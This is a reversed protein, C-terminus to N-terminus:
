SRVKGARKDWQRARWRSRLYGIPGYLMGKREQWTLERPYDSLKGNNKASNPSLAYLVGGPLKVLLDLLLRPNDLIAKTLFATFGAGYGYATRRLGAYDRRHSHHVIAAPEYVLTYGQMVTTFFGALDDGGMAPTGTGTAPDFGGMAKLASTRFAMNAGSGLQGATFPFLRDNPRHERLNILKRKYGKSFRSFQELWVQAPTELEAPFILGSVCAIDDSLDFDKVLESLWHPDAAVDDDTFAIISGDAHALGANHAAALGPRMERVYRVRRDHCYQARIFLETDDNGPNNDVVVIEFRPYDQALITKLTHSLGAVRNRTAIVVSVFPGDAIAAERAQTCPTAAEVALGQAPLEDVEAMGDERLHANIQTSFAMWLLSAITDASLGGKVLPMSTVGLPQAHLRVLVLAHDHQLGTLSSAPQIEPLPRSLEVELLRVPRFHKPLPDAVAQTQPPHTAVTTM